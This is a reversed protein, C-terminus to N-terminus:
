SDPFFYQFAHVSIAKEMKDLQFILNSASDFMSVTFKEPDFKVFVIVDGKNLVFEVLGDTFEVVIGRGEVWLSIPDVFFEIYKDQMKSCLLQFM